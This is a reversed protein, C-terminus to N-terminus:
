LTKPLRFVGLWTSLMLLHLLSLFFVLVYKHPRLRLSRYMHSMKEKKFYTCYFFRECCQSIVKTQCIAQCSDNFIYVHKQSKRSICLCACVSCHCCLKRVSWKVVDNTTCGWGHCLFDKHNYFCLLHLASLSSTYCALAQSAMWANNLTVPHTHIYSVGDQLM